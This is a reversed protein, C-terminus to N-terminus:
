RMSLWLNRQVCVKVESDNDFTPNRHLEFHLASAFDPKRSTQSIIGLARMVNVLTVDHGSYIFLKRAPKLQENKTQIMKDLVDTVLFGSFFVVMLIGIGFVHFLFSLFHSYNGGRVRKMYDNETLLALNRKALALLKKPFVADTWEPLELGFIKEIFLINYLQEGQALSTINQSYAFFYFRQNEYIYRISTFGTCIKKIQSVAGTHKSIYAFLEANEDLFKRVNEPPESYLQHLM